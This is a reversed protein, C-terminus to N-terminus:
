SRSLRHMGSWGKPRFDMRRFKALRIPCSGARLLLLKKKSKEAIEAIIEGLKQHTSIGAMSIGLNVVEVEPLAVALYHLPISSGFDLKEGELISTQLDAAHIGEIIQSTLLRDRPYTKKEGTVGFETFDAIFNESKPIRVVFKDLEIELHPSLVIFTQPSNQRLSLSISLLAQITREFKKTEAGGIAPIITPPHPTFIGHTLM